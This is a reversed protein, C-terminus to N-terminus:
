NENLAEMFYILVQKGADVTVIPESNKSEALLIESTTQGSKIGGQLLQNKISDDRISGYPSQIRNQAVSFMGQFFDSIIAGEILDEKGDDYEGIIGASGNMNLLQAVIPKEKHDDRMKNCYIRIRKNATVGNCIFKTKPPLGQGPIAAVLAPSDLNTSTISNLLIGKFVTGTLIPKKNEWVLPAASRLSLIEEIRDNQKKISELSKDIGSSKKSVTDIVVRKEVRPKIKLRSIGAEQAEILPSLLLFIILLTSKM